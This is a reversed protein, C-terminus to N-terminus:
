SASTLKTKKLWGGAQKGIGETLLVAQAWLKTSVFRKDHALRLLLTVVELREIIALIHLSM